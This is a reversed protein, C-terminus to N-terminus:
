RRFEVLTVRERLEDGALRISQGGRGIAAAVNKCREILGSEGEDRARIPCECRRKRDLEVRLRQDSRASVPIELFEARRAGEVEINVTAIAPRYSEGVANISDIRICVRVGGVLDRESIRVEVESRQSSIRHKAPLVPRARGEEEDPLLLPGAGLRESIETEPTIVAREEPLMRFIDEGHLRGIPEGTLVILWSICM